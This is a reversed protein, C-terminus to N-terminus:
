KNNEKGVHSIGMNAKPHTPMGSKRAGIGMNHMDVRIMMPDEAKTDNIYPTPFKSM